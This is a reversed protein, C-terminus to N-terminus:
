GVKNITVRYTDGTEDDDVFFEGDPMFRIRCVEYRKDDSKSLKVFLLSEVLAAILEQM